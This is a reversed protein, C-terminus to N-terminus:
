ASRLATAIPLRLCRVAPPLAGVLGLALAAMLGLAVAPADLLLGFASGSFRVALGDLLLLGAGCALLGGCAAALVSEQLLSAFIALRSFGIAQLAAFERVRTAFAAYSTNIGGFFGGSVILLATVWVMLRVPAFFQSVKGYYATEPIAVVELDNRESAFVQALPMDAAQEFALTVSSLTTRQTAVQMDQLPAWIEGAFVSGPAEFRGVITWVRGAHRLKHGLALEAEAIGAAAAVQDGVMLEDRGVEPIRGATVRLGGHVLYAAPTVGRFVARYEPGAARRGGDHPQEGPWFLGQVYIEPSIWAQGDTTRIGALTSVASVASGNFESREISEESGKAILLMNHKAGSSALSRTMGRVFGAAALMLLTVLFASGISLLLRQPSRGLNRVGYDWPLFTM